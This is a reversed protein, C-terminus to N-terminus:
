NLIAFGLVSLVDRELGKCALCWSKDEMKEGSKEVWCSAKGKKEGNIVNFDM